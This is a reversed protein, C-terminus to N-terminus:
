LYLSIRPQNEISDEKTFEGLKFTINPTLNTGGEGGGVGDYLRGYFEVQDIISLSQM